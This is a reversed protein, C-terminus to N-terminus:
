YMAQPAHTTDVQYFEPFVETFGTIFAVRKIIMDPTFWRCVDSYFKVQPLGGASM